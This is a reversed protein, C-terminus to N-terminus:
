YNQQTNESGIQQHNDNQNTDGHEIRRVNEQINRTIEPSMKIAKIFATLDDINKINFDKFERKITKGMEANERERLKRNKAKLEKIAKENKKRREEFSLSM